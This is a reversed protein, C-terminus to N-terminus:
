LGDQDASRLAGMATKLESLNRALRENLRRVRDRDLNKAIEALERHLRTWGRAEIMRGQQIARAANLWAQECLDAARPPEADYTEETGAPSPADPPAESPAESPADSPPPQDEGDWADNDDPFPAVPPTWNRYDAFDDSVHFPAATQFQDQRRWGEQKARWRFTSLPLDHRECVEAASGGALYDARAAAWTEAARRSRPPPPSDPLHRLFDSMRM